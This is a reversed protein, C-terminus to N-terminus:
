PITIKGSPPADILGDVFYQWQTIYGAIAKVVSLFQGTTNFKVGGSRARWMLHPDPSSFANFIGIHQAEQMMMTWRPGVVEYTGSLEPTSTSIIEVGNSFAIHMQQTPNPIWPTPPVLKGDMGKVWGPKPVPDLGTIEQCQTNLFEPHWEDNINSKEVIIEAVTIGDALYRAFMRPM